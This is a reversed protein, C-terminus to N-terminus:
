KWIEKEKLKAEELQAFCEEKTIKKLQVLPAGSYMPKHCLYMKEPLLLSAEGDEIFTVEGVYGEYTSYDVYIDEDPPISLVRVFDGVKIM